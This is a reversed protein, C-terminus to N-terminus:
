HTFGKRSNHYKERQQDTWERNYCAHSSKVFRRRSDKKVRSSVPFLRAVAAFASDLREPNKQSESNEKKLINPVKRITGLSIDRKVVVSAPEYSKKEKKQM